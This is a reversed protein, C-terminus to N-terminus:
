RSVTGDVDNLARSVLELGEGDPSSFYASDGNVIHV